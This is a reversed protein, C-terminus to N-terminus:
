RQNEEDARAGQAGEGSHEDLPPEEDDSGERYYGSLDYYGKGGREKNFPWWRMWNHYALIVILGLVTWVGSQITQGPPNKLLINSVLAFGSILVLSWSAFYATTAV